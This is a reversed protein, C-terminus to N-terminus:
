GRRGGGVRGAGRGDRPGIGLGRGRGRGVGLERGQGPIFQPRTRKEVEEIQRAEQGLEEIAGV